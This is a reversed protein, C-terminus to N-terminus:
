LRLALVAAFGDPGPAVAVSVSTAASVAGAVVAAAAFTLGVALGVDAAIYKVRISQVVDDSCHPSCTDEADSQAAYGLGAAIAFTALGAVGLGAFVWTVPHISGSSASDDAGLKVEVRRNGEGERAVISVKKAPSGARELTLEHPGPDIPIAKGDLREAVLAGDISVRVDAVDAGAEDTVVLTITPLSADVEALWTTCDGKTLDPCTSEACIEFEARARGLAGAARQRQGEEYADVCADASPAADTAHAPGALALVAALAALPALKLSPPM